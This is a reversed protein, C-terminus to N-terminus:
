KEPRPNGYGYDKLIKTEAFMTTMKVTKEIRFLTLCIM